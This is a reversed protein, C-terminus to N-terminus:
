SKNIKETNIHQCKRIGKIVLYYTGYKSSYLNCEHILLVGVKSNFIPVFNNQARKVNWTFTFLLNQTQFKHLGILFLSWLDKLKVTTLVSNRHKGKM